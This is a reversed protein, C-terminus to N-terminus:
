FGKRRSSGFGPVPIPREQFSRQADSSPLRSRSGQDTVSLITPVADGLLFVENYDSVRPDIQKWLTVLWNVDDHRVEATFFVDRGGMAGYQNLFTPDDIEDSLSWSTGVDEAKGSTVVEDPPCTVRITRYLSLTEAEFINSRLFSEVQSCVYDWPRLGDEEAIERVEDWDDIAEAIWNTIAALASKAPPKITEGAALMIQLCIAEIDLDAPSVILPNMAIFTRKCTTHHAHRQVLCVEL